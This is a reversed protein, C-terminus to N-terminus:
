PGLAYPDGRREHLVIAFALSFGAGAARGRDRVLEPETMGTHRIDHAMGGVPPVDHGGDLLNLATGEAPTTGNRTVTAGAVTALQAAAWALAQERISLPM